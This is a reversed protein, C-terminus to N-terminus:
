YWTTRLMTKEFLRDQSHTLAKMSPTTRISEPLKTNETEFTIVDMKKEFIEIPENLITAGVQAAPNNNNDALCYSTIGLPYGALTLMRALQGAGLIGVNM